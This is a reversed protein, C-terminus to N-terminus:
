KIVGSKILNQMIFHSDYKLPTAYAISYVPKNSHLRFTKVQYIDYVEKDFIILDMAQIFYCEDLFIEKTIVTDTVRRMTSPGNSEKIVGKIAKVQTECGTGFCYPCSVDPEGTLSSACVCRNKLRNIAILDGQYRHIMKKIAKDLM